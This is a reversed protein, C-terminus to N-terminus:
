QKRVKRHDIKVTDPGSLDRITTELDAMTKGYFIAVDVPLGVSVGHCHFPKGERLRKLNEEELGIVITSGAKAVVSM